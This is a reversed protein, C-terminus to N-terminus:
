QFSSCKCLFYCASMQIIACFLWSEFARYFCGRSVCVSDRVFTISRIKTPVDYRRKVERRCAFDCWDSCIQVTHEQCEATCYRFHIFPLATTPIFTVLCLFFCLFQKGSGQANLIFGTLLQLVIQLVEKNGKIHVLM